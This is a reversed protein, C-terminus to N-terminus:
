GKADYQMVKEMRSLVDKAVDWIKGETGLRVICRCPWPSPQWPLATPM